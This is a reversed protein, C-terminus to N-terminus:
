KKFILRISELIKGAEYVTKGLFFLTVAKPNNFKKVFAQFFKTKEGGIREVQKKPWRKKLAAALRGHKFRSFLFGSLDKKENHWVIINKDYFIKQNKELLRWGFDMDEGCFYPSWFLSFNQGQLFNKKFSINKTDVVSINNNNKNLYKRFWFNYYFQLIQSYLNNKNLNLSQGQIAAAKPNNKHSIKINKIFNIDLICDDDTYVIIEGKATNLGRNRAKPIGHKIEFLHIIKLTKFKAIIKKDNSLTKSSVVIVENPKIKQKLVSNLCQELNKSRNSTTIILSTKM